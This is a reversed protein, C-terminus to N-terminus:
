AHAKTELTRGFYEQCIKFINKDVYIITDRRVVLGVRPTHSHKKIVIFSYLTYHIKGVLGFIYHIKSM